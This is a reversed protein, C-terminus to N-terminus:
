ALPEMKRPRHGNRLRQWNLALEVQHLGTWEIVMSRARHPLAGKLVRIPRIAVEMQGDGYFAHIHPPNHDDAFMRIIIGFFRCLEPM